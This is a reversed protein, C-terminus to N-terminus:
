RVAPLIDTYLFDAPLAWRGDDNRSTVAVVLRDRASVFIWQGMAGSATMIESPNMMWWLYGYDVPHSGLSRM